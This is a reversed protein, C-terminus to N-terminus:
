AAATAAGAAAAAPPFFVTVAWLMNGVFGVAWELWPVKQPPDPLHDLAWEMAGQWDQMCDNIRQEVDSGVGLREYAEDSVSLPSTKPSSGGPKSRPAM